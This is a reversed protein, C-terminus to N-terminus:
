HMGAGHEPDGPGQQDDKRRRHAWKIKRAEETVGMTAIETKWMREM